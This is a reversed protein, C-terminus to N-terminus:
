RRANNYDRYIPAMNDGSNIFGDRNPDPVGMDRDDDPYYFDVPTAGAPEAPQRNISPRVPAPPIRARGMPERELTRPTVPAGPALPVDSSQRSHTEEGGGMLDHLADRAGSIMRRAGGVVDLGARPTPRASDPNIRGERPMDSFPDNQFAAEALTDHARDLFSTRGQTESQQARPTPATSPRAPQSRGIREIGNAVANAANQIVPPVRVQSTPARRPQAQPMYPQQRPPSAMPRNTPALPGARTNPMANVVVDEGEMHERMPPVLAPASNMSKQPLGARPAPAPDRFQNPAAVDPTPALDSVGPSQMRAVDPGGVDQPKYPDHGPSAFNQKLAVFDLM